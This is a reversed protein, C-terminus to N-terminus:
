EDWGAKETGVRLDAPAGPNLDLCLFALCPSLPFAQESFPM